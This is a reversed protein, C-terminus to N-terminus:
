RSMVGLTTTVGCKFLMEDLPGRTLWLQNTRVDMEGTRCVSNVWSSIM